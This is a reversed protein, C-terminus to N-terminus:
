VFVEGDPFLNTRARGLEIGIEACDRQALNKSNRGSFVKLEAM